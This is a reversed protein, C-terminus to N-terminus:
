ADFPLPRKPSKNARVEEVVTAYDSAGYRAFVEAFVNPLKRYPSVGLDKLLIDIYQQYRTNTACGRSPEFTIHARKWARIRDISAQMEEKPPLEMEGRWLCALWQAGIEVSPVHMFGHNLGAFGVHPFSPHM